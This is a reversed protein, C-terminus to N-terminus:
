LHLSEHKLLHQLETSLRGKVADPTEAIGIVLLLHSRFPHSQLKTDLDHNLRQHSFQLILTWAIGPTQRHIVIWLRNVDNM